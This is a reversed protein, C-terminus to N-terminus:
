LVFFASSCNFDSHNIIFCLTQIYSAFSLPWAFFDSNNECCKNFVNFLRIQFFLKRLLVFVCFLSKGLNICAFGGGLFRISIMYALISVSTVIFFFFSTYFCSFYFRFLIFQVVRILSYVRDRICM